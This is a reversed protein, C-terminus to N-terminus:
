PQCNRPCRDRLPSPKSNLASPRLTKLTSAGTRPHQPDQLVPHSHNSVADFRSPPSVLSGLISSCSCTTDRISARLAPQARAHGGEMHANRACGWSQMPEKKTSCSLFARPTDCSMRACALALVRISLVCSSVSVQRLTADHLAVHMLHTMRPTLRSTRRLSTIITHLVRQFTFHQADIGVSIHLSSTGQGPSFLRLADLNGVKRLRAASSANTTAEHLWGRPLYLTSGPSLTVSQRSNTDVENASPKYRQEPRPLHIIPDYISWTKNGELQLVMTDMPDWHVEFGQANKPTMYANMQVVFGIEDELQEALRALASFRCDVANFILTFGKRLWAVVEPPTMSTAPASGSWWEGDKGRVRKVVQFDKGIGHLMAAGESGPELSVSRGLMTFIARSSLELEMFHSTSARPIFLIGKEFRAFTAGEVEHTGSTTSLFDASTWPELAAKLLNSAGHKTSCSEDDARRLGPSSQAGSSGLLVISSLLFLMEASKMGPRYWQPSFTLIRGSLLPGGAPPGGRAPAWLQLSNPNPCM